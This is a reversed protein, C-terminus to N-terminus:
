FKLIIEEYIYRDDFIDRVNYKRFNSEDTLKNGSYKEIFNVFM